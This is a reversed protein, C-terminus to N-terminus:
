DECIEGNEYLWRVFHMRSDNVVREHMEDNNYLYERLDVLKMAEQWEFGLDLLQEVQRQEELSTVSPYDADIQQLLQEYHENYSNQSPVQPNLM